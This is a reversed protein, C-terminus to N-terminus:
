RYIISAVGLDYTTVGGVTTLRVSNLAASLAKAGSQLEQATTDSRGLHSTCVWTFDTADELTLRITGRYVATAATDFTIQFGTGGGAGTSPSAANTLQTVTSTYGANEFGGADGLQVILASTGSTSVGVLQIIIEKAWSPIGTFDISTGSTTAQEASLVGAGIRGALVKKTGTASADYTLVYDAGLDPTTDDTAGNINLYAGYASVFYSTVIMNATTDARVTMRDGAAAVISVGGPLILSTANHTITPTSDFIVVRKAGAYPATGLSTIPGTSGTVHVFDGVIAWINTTAASTVASGKRNVMDADISPNVASILSYSVASLGSDLVGSDNAVTVTTLAGFATTIITSYITGGSNTTKLRRGVHFTSTQDGVLTFSTTSVFTPASGYAVWQDQAAAVDNIGALNDITWIPSNPPDDSGPPAYVVKYLQGSTFWIETTPTGLANLTLPNTNASGGTSDTYTNQKTGVSGAVYFFLRYGVAPTGDSLQFQPKPGFPSCLVAM